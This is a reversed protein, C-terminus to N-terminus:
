IRNTQKEDIQYIGSLLEGVVTLYNDVTEASHRETDEPMVNLLAILGRTCHTISADSFLNIVNSPQNMQTNSM